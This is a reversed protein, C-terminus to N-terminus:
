LWLSPASRHFVRLRRVKVVKVLKRLKGSFGLESAAKAEYPQIVPSRSFVPASINHYPCEVVVVLSAQRLLDPVVLAKPM